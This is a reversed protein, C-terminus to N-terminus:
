RHRGPGDNYDRHSGRHSGGRQFGDDVPVLICGSLMVVAPVLLMLRLVYTGKM